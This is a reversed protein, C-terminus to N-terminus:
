FDGARNDYHTPKSWAEGGRAVWDAIWRFMQGSETGPEGFLRCAKQANALLADEAESGEFRVPKDFLAGFEEAVKRVSYPRSGTINVVLPPAAAHRLSQLSMANADAQWIANVYGMGLQITEGAYVQRAIDTLVGYRLEVAYSLRLFSMPTGQSRSFHEFIRERGLCSMAYEGAPHPSDEELAGGTKLSTLGYVNGTSFVAIRSKAYRESVLGPLFSNMAWTRPEQGTTGFKMGAMYVINPADPLQAYAARDLLDCSHTEIGWSQLREALQPTSFRSVGIVKRQVGALDSARKAMRALTPGMKGGVGLVIVDGELAKMTEVVGPTPRSLVDELEEVNRIGSESMTEVFDDEEKMGGFNRRDPAKRNEMSFAQRRDGAAPYPFEM